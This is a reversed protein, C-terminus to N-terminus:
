CSICDQELSMCAVAAAHATSSMPMAASIDIISSSSSHLLEQIPM